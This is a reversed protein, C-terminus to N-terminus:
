PKRQRTLEICEKGTIHEPELAIMCLADYFREIEADRKETPEEPSYKDALAEISARLEAPDEVVGLRGFVVVSRFLTTYLAPALEDQGIVCFSAKGDRAIADLKHGSKASHFYLRGDLAVYNLPVTYPYGDDGHVALVGTTGTELIAAAEGAPLQQKKRRMERFM